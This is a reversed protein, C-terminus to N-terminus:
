STAGSSTARDRPECLARIVFVPSDVNRRWLRRPEKALRYLWQLGMRQVWRPAMPVTGAYFDFMAGIPGIVKVNLANRFDHAWREQKPSGLGVWLVDAGARNVLAAMESREAESFAAKYPPAFCGAVRVDPFDRRHREVILDLVRQNGGLFFVSRGGDQNLRRTVEMFIDPGCVRQTVAGGRMRSALVVGIGDPTLLDANRAAEAFMPDRRACEFSHPNMCIFYRTATGDTVWGHITTAVAALAETTIPLGLMWERTPRPSTM